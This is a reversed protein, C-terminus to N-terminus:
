EFEEYLDTNDFPRILVTTETKRQELILDTKPCVSLTEYVTMTKEISFDEISQFDGFNRTTALSAIDGTYTKFSKSSTAKFGGWTTGYLTVKYDISTEM